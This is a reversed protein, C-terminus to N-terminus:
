STKLLSLDWGGTALKAHYDCLEDNGITLPNGLYQSIAHRLFSIERGTVWTKFAFPEGEMGLLVNVYFERVIELHLKPEPECSKEWHMDM